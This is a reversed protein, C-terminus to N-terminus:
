SIIIVDLISDMAAYNRASSFMYEWPKAVLMEEVPNNHIYDLKELTFKASYLEVPHNGDQWFKYENSKPHLAAAKKFSELMWERRSEPEEIIQKIITKSTYTKFDCLIDSLNFGEKAQIIM